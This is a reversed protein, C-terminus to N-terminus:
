LFNLEWLFHIEESESTNCAQLTLQGMNDHM